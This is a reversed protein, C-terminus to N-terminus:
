TDKMVINFKLLNNLACIFHGTIDLRYTGNKFLYIGNVNKRYSILKFLNEIQNSINSRLNQSVLYVIASLCELQVAIYNTEIDNTIIILKLIKKSLINCYKEVSIILSLKSLYQAIWNLTFIDNGSLNNIINKAIKKHLLVVNSDSKYLALSDLIEYDEFTFKYSRKTEISTLIQLLLANYILTSNNYDNLILYCKLLFSLAQKNSKIDVLLTKKYNNIENTIIEITRSSLKINNKYKNFNHLILLNYLTGVNRVNGDNLTNDLLYENFFNILPLTYYELLSTEYIKAKYAYYQILEKTENIGAKNNISKQIQDWSYNKFVHPLYTAKAHSYKDSVIIGYKNNDFDIDVKQIKGTNSSIPWVPTQMYYIKFKALLDLYLSQHFYIKRYDNWVASNAVSSLKDIIQEHSIAEYNNTWYGICGHIGYPYKNKEYNREVSVFVGFINNDLLFEFNKSHIKYVLGSEIVYNLDM